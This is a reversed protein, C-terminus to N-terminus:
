SGVGFVTQKLALFQQALAIKYDHLLARVRKENELRTARACEIHELLLDVDFDDIAQAFEGWGFESLLHQNKEAYGLSVTPRAVKLGAIVNHFRSAVVVEARVMEQMLAHFTNAQSVVLRGSPLDQRKREVSAVIEQALFTDALDGVVLTVTRGDALLRIIAAVMKEAYSEGARRVDEGRMVATLGEVGRRILPGDVVGRASPLWSPMVGIVVHGPLPEAEPPATLAFALDPYVTGREGAAPQRLMAVQSQRDRFSCYRSLAMTWRYLLRVWPNPAVEAGVSVLVFRRRQLRAALATLFQWYPLGWANAGLTSELVGMGPVLVVDVERVLALTRPIDLLRGLAKRLAGRTAGPGRLNPYCMLSRGPVGHLRQVVDPDASLCTLVVDPCDAGLWERVAQFSAENGINGMGLFGYAAIRLLPSTVQSKRGAPMVGDRSLLERMMEPRLRGSLWTAVEIMCRGKEGAFM